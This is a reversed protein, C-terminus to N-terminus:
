SEARRMYTIPMIHKSKLVVHSDLGRVEVLPYIDITTTVSIEGDIAGGDVAPPVDRVTEVITANQRVKMPLGSYYVKNIVALVRDKPAGSRVNRSPGVQMSSPPGSAAARAADRCVFENLSAGIAVFICNMMVFFVPIMVMLGGGLEVLSQGSKRSDNMKSNRHSKSQEKSSFM